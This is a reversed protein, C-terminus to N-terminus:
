HRRLPESIDSSTIVVPGLLGSSLLPSNARYPNFSTIASRRAGPQRDGILRNPWLNTVGITLDNKGERLFPSIDLRYPEKWAIGAAQGNVTVEALDKVRGLDLQIRGGRRFWSHSAVFSVQYRATGSFYRIRPDSMRNWSKLGKFKAIEPATRGQQFEVRWPGTVSLLRRIIPQRVIDLRRDTRTRFVVFVSEFPALELPVETRTSVQRYTVREIAGTDAHWLEPLRGVARFSARFRQSKKLPNSIFYTDGDSLERHVFEIRMSSKSKTYSFDRAIQAYKLYRGISFGSIMQGRGYRRSGPGENGWLAQVVSTYEEASDALSPGERPKTGIVTAGEHVLKAIVKLVDLSMSAHPALVLVRYRMGSNTILNGQRVSLKTLADANAFDFSYGQPIPPLRHAFLATLNTDQGYYYLIDAVFHGQQLLYSSRAIYTIWPAAEEAWTENRTFWQGWHGFTLGPGQVNEPQHVSTHFVVLNVGDSFERDVIPKLDEPAFAFATKATGLVTMSEAAVRNQGYIHAVSASERIDADSSAEPVLSGPIWMASMPIDDARKVDMGDGIFARSFEHSEGYHIMDQAHLSTAIQGYHNDTLLEGLTRRFDWLFKDSKEVSDVTRGTLTLLWPRIDYGRRRAFEAPLADTWNQPGAEWSDNVMAKIGNQGLPGPGLISQYRKLYADMYARVASRDLKDVELGTGERPAPQNTIGLLSYGLRLIAWRGAPVVWDLKGNAGLRSTLDVIDSPKIADQSVPVARNDALGSELFYGAKTEFHDIRRVPSLVLEAIKITVPPPGLLDAIARPVDKMSPPPFRVRYYRARTAPFSVTEEIPPPYSLSFRRSQYASALDRFHMGDHSVQLRAGVHGRGFMDWFGLQLAITMSSVRQPHGFDFLIWAGGRSKYYTLCLPHQLDHDWLIQNPVSGVSSLVRPRLEAMSLDNKPLRYALVAIDRYIEPVAKPPAAGQDSIADNQALPVNQFPGVTRPPSLLVGNFSSGGEVRTEAWVVKKMAHEPEVWPGGTESYGASSAIAYELGQRNALSVAQRFANRWSSGGYVVRHPVVDPVDAAVDFNQVGGIGIHRLWELDLQIGQQDVNGSVWHWWVRPRAYAPPNAFDAVQLGGTSAFCPTALLICTVLGLRMAAISFSRCRRFMLQAADAAFCDDLPM